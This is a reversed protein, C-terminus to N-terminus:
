FIKPKKADFIAWMNTYFKFTLRFLYIRHHTQKIYNSSLYLLLYILYPNKQMLFYLQRSNDLAVLLSGNRYSSCWPTRYPVVGKGLKSWKLRSVYRINSLTLCLPIMYWKKFIKPIVHGPILGLDRSGNACMRGVSFKANKLFSKDNVTCILWM